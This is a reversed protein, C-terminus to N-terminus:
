FISPIRFYSAHGKQVILIYKQKGTRAVDYKDVYEYDSEELYETDNNSGKFTDFNYFCSLKDPSSLNFVQIWIVIYIIIKGAVLNIAVLAIFAAIFFLNSITKIVM